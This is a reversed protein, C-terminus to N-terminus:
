VGGPPDDLLANLRRLREAASLRLAEHIAAIIESPLAPKVLYIDVGAVLGGMRDDEQGMATLIVLPTQASSPDGRLARVFQYGDLAPMKVDIVVCDPRAEFYRALGVAGDEATVVNFQRSLGATMLHLLDTNDDVVLVTARGDVPTEM